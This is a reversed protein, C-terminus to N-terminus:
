KNSIYLNKQLIFILINYSFILIKVKISIKWMDIPTTEELLFVTEKQLYNSPASQPPHPPALQRKGSRKKSNYRKFTYFARKKTQICTDHGKEQIQGKKSRLGGSVWIM